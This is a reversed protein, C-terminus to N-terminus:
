NSMVNPNCLEMRATVKLNWYIQGSLVAGDVTQWRVFQSISYPQVPTGTMGISPQAEWQAKSMGAVVAASYWRKLVLPPAGFIAMGTASGQTAILVQQTSLSPNVVSTTNFPMMTVQVADGALAPVCTLEFYFSVPRYAGYINQAANFGTYPVGTSGVTTVGGPNNGSVDFGSLSLWPSNLDQVPCVFYGGGVGPQNVGGLQSQFTQFIRPMFGLRHPATRGTQMRATVMEDGTTVYM